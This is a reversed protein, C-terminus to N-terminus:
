AAVRTPEVKSKWSNKWRWYAWGPKYGRVRALQQFDELTRCMREEHRRNRIDILRATEIETLVGDAQEIKRAKSEKVTGCEPCRPGRFIAFCKECQRTELVAEAKRKKASHGDLSWERVEEALGHRACNGVHDLIIADPKGPAPRLVRGIQQLHLAVSATPRLLTASGVAPLDFGESVLDVSVLVMTEGTRLRGIIGDRQEQGMEGDIVESSVGAACFQECVHQAHAISTCFVISTRGSAIRLYHQVADGTIVPRDMMEAAEKRNFDGATKRLHSPDIRNLAAFYRPKALFGESILWDVRPGMVMRHYFEGLGRGDLREPTATVGLYRANPYAAFVKVWSGACSHHAEDVVILDPAPSGDLRRCLTQVSAVMVQYGAPIARGATLLAHPVEWTTLTKSIQAMIEQRHTLILVRLGRSSAGKTVYVFLVTKGSGTPSVLLVRKIGSRFEARLDEVSQMQYARLDMFKSLTLPKLRFWALSAIKKARAEALPRLVM